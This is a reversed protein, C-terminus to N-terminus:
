FTLISLLIVLITRLRLLVRRTTFGFDIFLILIIHSRDAENYIDLIFTLVLLLLFLLLILFLILFVLWIWAGFFYFYIWFFVYILWSRMVRLGKMANELDVLSLKIRRFFILIILLVALLIILLAALLFFNFNDIHIAIFTLLLFLFM